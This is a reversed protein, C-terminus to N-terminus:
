LTEKLTLPLDPMPEDNAIATLAVAAYHIFQAAKDDAGSENADKNKLITSVYNLTPIVFFLYIKWSM